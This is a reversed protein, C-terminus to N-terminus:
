VPYQAQTMQLHRKQRDLGTQNEREKVSRQQDEQDTKTSEKHRTLRNQRSRKAHM